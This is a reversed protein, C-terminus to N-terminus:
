IARGEGGGSAVLAALIGGVHAPQAVELDRATGKRTDIRVVCPLCPVNWGSRIIESGPGKWVDRSVECVLLRVGALAAESPDASPHAEVASLVAPCVRRCDPCWDGTFLVLDVGGESAEPPSAFARSAAADVGAADTRGVVCGMRVM